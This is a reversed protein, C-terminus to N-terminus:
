AMIVIKVFNGSLKKYPPLFCFSACFTDGHFPEEENGNRPCNKGSLHITELPYRRLPCQNPLASKEPM